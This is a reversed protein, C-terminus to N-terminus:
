KASHALFNGATFLLGSVGFLLAALIAVIQWTTPINSLRGDIRAVDAATAQHSSRERLETVILEIRQLSNEVREIKQELATVRPELM